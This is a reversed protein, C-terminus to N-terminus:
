EGQEKSEREEMLRRIQKEKLNSHCCSMEILHQLTKNPM